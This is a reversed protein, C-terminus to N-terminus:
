NNALEEIDLNNLLNKTTDYTSTIYKLDLNEKSEETYPSILLEEEQDVDEYTTERRTDSKQNEFSESIVEHQHNQSFNLTDENL